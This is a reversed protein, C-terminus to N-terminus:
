FILLLNRKLKLSIEQIAKSKLELFAAQRNEYKSFYFSICKDTNFATGYVECLSVCCARTYQIKSLTTRAYNIWVTYM